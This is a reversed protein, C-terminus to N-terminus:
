TWRCPPCAAPGRQPPSPRRGRSVVRRAFASCAAGSTPAKVTPLSVWNCRAVTAAVAGCRQDAPESGSTAVRCEVACGARASPAPRRRLAFASRTEASESSWWRRAKRSRRRPKQPAPARTPLTRIVRATAPPSNDTVGAPSPELVASLQEPRATPLAASDHRCSRHPRIADLIFHTLANTTARVFQICPGIKQTLEGCGGRRQDSRRM